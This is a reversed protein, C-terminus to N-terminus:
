GDGRYAIHEYVFYDSIILLHPSTFVHLYMYISTFLHLYMYISTYVHLYIYISTFVHLCM